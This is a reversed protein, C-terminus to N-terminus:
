RGPARPVDPRPGPTRGPPTVTPAGRDAAPRGSPLSDDDRESRGRSDEGSHPEPGGRGATVERGRAEGHEGARGPEDLERNGDDERESSRGREGAEGARGRGDLEARGRTSEPGGRDEDIDDDLAEDAARDEDRGHRRGRLAHEAGIAAALARGRLGEALRAAVFSGFRDVRGHERVATATESMVAAAVDPRADSEDLAVLADRVEAEDAGADRAEDAAIPISIAARLRDGLALEEADVTALVATLIPSTPWALPTPALVAAPEAGLILGVEPTAIPVPAVLSPAVLSPAALSPAALSPEAELSGGVAGGIRTEATVAVSAASAEQATASALPVSAIAILVCTRILSDNSSTM